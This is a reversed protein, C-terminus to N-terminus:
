RGRKQLAYGREENSHEQSKKLFQVVESDKLDPFSEYFSAVAFYFGKSVHLCIIRDVQKKVLDYAESHAVPVAVIVQEAKKEQAFKVATLMTYGTALGDDTIIVSKGKLNPFPRDERYIRNRRLVEEYVENVILSIDERSVHSRRILYENLIVRKDLTVAGFGMQDNEPLPLKRLVLIDLPGNIARALYFGIPVGGRAIGLVIPEGLSPKLPILKEALVQGVQKRDRFIVM